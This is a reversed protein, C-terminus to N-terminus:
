KLTKIFEVLDNLEQDTLAGYVPPMQGAQFGEVIQASPEKVSRKIYEADATIETGDNLKEKRGFLGKFTPGVLKSGDLSHCTACAPVALKGYVLKGREAPSMKDLAAKDLKPGTAVVPPAQPEKITKIFEILGHIEEDSVMGAFAPMQNPPYDKVIQSNPDLISNKLYNEDATIKKGDSLEEEKGFLKLFSPGVLRSGDLSHCANCGKSVYLEKGLDSPKMRALRIAESEDALWREYEQKPLVKLTALMASHDKGCYETCFVNYEGTKVPKFWLTTYQKPVVDSKVRMAPVFFSHLVDTSTMVLKVPEDVPVVLENTTKKGTKYEFDWKWRQGTVNIEMANAPPTRMETFVNYGYAAVYVCIISPVVTWLMELFHSGQIAPTEHDKGDKRRWIYAFILMAGVIAVTFFVSIDTIIHNITDVKPAFESAQEPLYRFM